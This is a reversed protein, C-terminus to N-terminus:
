FSIAKLPKEAELGRQTLPLLIDELLYKVLVSRATKNKTM